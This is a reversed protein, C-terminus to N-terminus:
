RSGFHADSWGKGEEPEAGWSRWLEALDLGPSENEIETRSVCREIRNSKEGTLFAELLGNRVLGLGVPRVPIGPLNTLGRPMSLNYITVPFSIPQFLTSSVETGKKGEVVMM